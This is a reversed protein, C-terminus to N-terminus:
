LDKQVSMLLAEKQLIIELFWEKFLSCQNDKLQPFSHGPNEGCSTEM